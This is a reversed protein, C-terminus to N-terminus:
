FMGYFSLAKATDNNKDAQAASKVTELASDESDKKIRYLFNKAAEIREEQTFSGNNKWHDFLVNEYHEKNARRGILQQLRKYAEIKKFIRLM